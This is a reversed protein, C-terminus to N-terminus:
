IGAEGALNGFPKPPTFGPITFISKCRRVVREPAPKIDATIEFHADATRWNM